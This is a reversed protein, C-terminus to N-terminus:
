SERMKNLIRYLANAEKETLEEVFYDKVSKKLKPFVEDLLSIGKETIRLDIKRRNQPCPQRDVYEKKVLRDMLRTIDPNKFLMREKIDGPSLPQPHAGNLIKLINFQPHTLQYPALAQKVRLEIWNATFLFNFYAAAHKDEYSPQDPFDM